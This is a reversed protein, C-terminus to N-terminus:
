CTCYKYKDVGLRTTSGRYEIRRMRVYLVSRQDGDNNSKSVSEALTLVREARRPTVRSGVIAVQLADPGRPEGGDGGLNVAIAAGCLSSIDAREEHTPDGM